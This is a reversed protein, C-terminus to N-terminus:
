LLWLGIRVTKATTRSTVSLRVSPCVSNTLCFAAIKDAALCYFKASFNVMPEFAFMRSESSESTTAPSAEYTEDEDSSSSNSYPESAGPVRAVILETTTDRYVRRSENTTLCQVKEKSSSNPPRKRIVGTSSMHM